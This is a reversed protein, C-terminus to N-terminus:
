PHTLGRLHNIVENLLTHSYFFFNKKVRKIRVACLVARFVIAISLVANLVAGVTSSMSTYLCDVAGDCSPYM